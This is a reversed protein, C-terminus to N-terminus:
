KLGLYLLYFQADEGTNPLIAELLGGGLHVPTVISETFDSGLAPTFLIGFFIKDAYAEPFQFTLKTLGGPLIELSLAPPSLNVVTQGNSSPDNPDTGDLVEQLDSFGDGDSDGSGNQDLDGFLLLELADALLDDDSDAPAPVPVTGLTLSIVEVADGACGLNPLDTYGFVQIESGAPLAFAQLLNFPVGERHWLSRAPGGGAPDLLTCPGIFSDPRVVLNITATPRGSVLALVNAVGTFASTLDAQSLTTAAAYAAPLQGSILFGRIVDVVPAYTGPPSGNNLLSSIRYIESAV